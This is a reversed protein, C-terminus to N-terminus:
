AGFRRHLLRLTRLKNGREDFVNILYIGEPLDKILYGKEPDPRAFTKLKRGLTNIVEVKGARVGRPLEVFFNDIAPNPYVRTVGRSAPAPRANRRDIVNFDFTTTGYTVGPQAVPAFRVTLRGKGTINDPRLILYYETTQGAPLTFINNEEANAYGRTSYPGYNPKKEFLLSRWRNAQGETEKQWRLQLDRSGVNTLRITSIDEFDDQLENVVVEKSVSTPSIELSGTQARAGLPLALCVALLIRSNILLM